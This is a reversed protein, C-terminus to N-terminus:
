SVFRKISKLCKEMNLRGQPNASHIHILPISIPSNIERQRYATLEMLTLFHYGNTYEVYTDPNTGMDHDLSIETIESRHSNWFKFATYMCRFVIWSRDPPERVDDVFIKM